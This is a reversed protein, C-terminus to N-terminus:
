LSDLTKEKYILPRQEDNHLGGGVSRVGFFVFLVEFLCVCPVRLDEGTAGFFVDSFDEFGRSM